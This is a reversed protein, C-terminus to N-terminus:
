RKKVKVSINNGYINEYQKVSENVNIWYNNLYINRNEEHVKEDFLGGLAKITKESGENTSVCDVMVKDLGLKQAEILVLYLQIKAYGKRRETPRIGYGIHGGYKKLYDNLYHRLNVMGVIKNDSERITFYTTAPVLKNVEAYEKEKLRTTEELWDEYSMNNEVIRKLSSTGNLDSGYKIHENIYELVEEKRDINVEELYFKEM